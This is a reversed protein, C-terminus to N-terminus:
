SIHECIEKLIMEASLVGVFTHVPRGRVFLMAVPLAEIHFRQAIAPFKEVDVKLLRIDDDNNVENDVTSATATNNTRLLEIAQRLETHLM